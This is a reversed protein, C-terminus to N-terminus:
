FPSIQDSHRLTQSRISNNIIFMILLVYIFRFLLIVSLDAGMLLILVTDEIISHYMSILCMSLFIDKKSIAKNRSEHILLGGGFSLGITIGILTLSTATKSIGITGLIPALLKQILANIGIKDMMRLLIILGAIIFYIITFNYLQEWAWEYLGEQVGIEPIYDLKVKEQFLDFYSCVIKITYGFIFAGGIRLLLTLMWNIGVKKAIAGEILLSHGFLMMSGLITVQMVSLLSSEVQTFFVILGTYIGTLLTTAWVIGADGPLGVMNMIPDLIKSIWRIFGIEELVKIFIIAPVMIKMLTIYTSNTDSFWKKLFPLIKNQMPNLFQFKGLKTSLENILM